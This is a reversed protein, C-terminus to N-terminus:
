RVGLSCCLETIKRESPTALDGAINAFNVAAENRMNLFISVLFLGFNVVIDIRTFM